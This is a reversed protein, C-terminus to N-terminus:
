GPGRSAAAAVPNRAAEGSAARGTRAARAGPSAARPRRRREPGAGALHGACRPRRRPRPRPLHSGPRRGACEGRLRGPDLGPRAREAATGGIGRRPRAVEAGARGVRGRPRAIEGPRLRRGQATGRRLGVRRPRGARLGRVVRVIREARLVREGRCPGPPGGAAPRRAPRPGPAPVRQLHGPYPWGTRPRTASGPNIPMVTIPAMAPMTRPMRASPWIRRVPCRPRPRAM